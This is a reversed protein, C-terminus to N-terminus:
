IFKNIIQRTHIPPVPRRPASAPRPLAAATAAIVHVEPPHPGLPPSRLFFPCSSRAIICSFFCSPAMLSTSLVPSMAFFLRPSPHSRHEHQRMRYHRPNLPVLPPPRPAPRTTDREQWVSLEHSLSSTPANWIELQGSPQHPEALRTLPICQLSSTRSERRTLYLDALVLAALGDGRTVIRATNPL